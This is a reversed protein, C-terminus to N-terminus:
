MQLMHHNQTKNFSGKHTLAYDDAWIAAQHLDEAKRKDLHTTIEAQLCGKFEKLLM